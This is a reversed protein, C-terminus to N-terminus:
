KRLTQVLRIGSPVAVILPFWWWGFLNNVAVVAVCLGLSCFLNVFVAPSLSYGSRRYFAMIILLDVTMWVLYAGGLGTFGWYHFGIVNVVLGVIGSLVETICFTMGDGRALFTYSACLSLPKFLMGTMAWTFYPLVPLFEASYLTRVILDSASVMLCVTPLVVKMLFIVEHGVLARTRLRSGITRTVRPYFEMGISAFVLGTYRWVLTYGSQYIGLTAEDTARTMYAIFLYNVVAGIISAVSMFFGVRVFDVGMSATRRVSLAVPRRPKVRYSWAAAATIVAYCVISPAIGGVGCWKFLPVSVVLGGVAGVLSSKALDKLRGVGQMVAHEGGLLSQFLLAVSLIRFAATYEGHGFTWRSLLPAGAFAVAAGLLGLVWAWRRVVAAVMDLRSEPAGAIDRVASTRMSLQTVSAIMDIVSNFIGFVGIGVSGIWIAVFKNRVLTCLITFVQLGGFLSMAKFVMGTLERRGVGGGATMQAM